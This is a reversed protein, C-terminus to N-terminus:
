ATLVNGDQRLEGYISNVLDATAVAAPLGDFDSNINEQVIVAGRTAVREMGKVAGAHAISKLEGTLQDIGTIQFKFDDAM